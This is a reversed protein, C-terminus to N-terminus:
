TSALAEFMLGFPKDLSEYPIIEPLDQEVVPMSRGIVVMKPDLPKINQPLFQDFLGMKDMVDGVLATFLEQKALAFLESDNKWLLSM